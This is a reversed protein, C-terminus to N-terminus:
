CDAIEFPSPPFVNGTTEYLLPTRRRPERSFVRCQLYYWVVSCLSSLRRIRSVLFCSRPSPFILFSFFFFPVLNPSIFSSRFSTRYRPLGQFLADSLYVVSNDRQWYFSNRYRIFVFPRAAPSRFHFPPTQKSKM